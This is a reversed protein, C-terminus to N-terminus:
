ERLIESPSKAFKNRVLYIAFLLNFAYVFAILLLISYRFYFIDFKFLYHTISYTIVNSFILGVSSSIMIAFTAEVLYIKLIENRKSGFIKFLLLERFREQASNIVMSFLLILGLILSPISVILVANLIVNTIAQITKFIDTQSIVFINSFDKLLRSQIKPVDKENTYSYGFYTKPMSELLEPSFVFFFFPLGQTPDVKRFSTVKAKIAKGSVLFEVQSGIKLGLREAFKNEVSVVGKVKDGHWVGDTLKESTTIKTRYTLNFERKFEMNEKTDDQIKRNDVKILRARVNPFVELNKVYSYLKDKQDERINIIYMNPTKKSLPGQLNEQLNSQLTGITFIGSFSLVLASLITEGVFGQSKIFNIISRTTFGFLFRKKYFLNTFFRIILILLAFIMSVSFVSILAAKVDEILYYIGAFLGISILVSTTMESIFGKLKGEAKLPQSLIIKPEIKLIRLFAPFYSFLSLFTIFITILLINEYIAPAPLKNGSFKEIYPLVFKNILNGSLNGLLSSSIAVTLVIFTFIFSVDKNKMGLVKFVAISKTFYNVLYSLNTRVNIMILFLTLVTIVLFFKEWVEVIRVLQTPGKKSTTVGAGKSKFEKELLDIKSFDAKNDVRVALVNSFVSFKLDNSIKKWGDFTMLVKPMFSIGSGFSDPEKVIVDKVNFIQNGIVVNQGIKVNLKELFSKEVYISNSNPLKTNNKETEIKGYLPYNDSVVKLSILITNNFLFFGVKQASIVTEVKNYTKAGNKIFETLLKSKNIDITSSQQIVIDGGTLEKSQSQIYNKVSGILGFVISLVFAGVFLSLFTVLLKTKDRKLIRFYTSFIYNKM